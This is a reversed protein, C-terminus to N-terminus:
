GLDRAFRFADIKQMVRIGAEEAQNYMYPDSSTFIILHHMEPPITGLVDIGNMQGELHGDLLILDFPTPHALMDLAVHGSMAVHIDHNELWRKALDLVSADDEVLLIKM